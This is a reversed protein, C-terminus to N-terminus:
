IYELEARAVIDEEEKQTGLNTDRAFIEPKDFPHWQKFVCVFCMECRTCRRQSGESYIKTLYKKIHQSEMSFFFIHFEVMCLERSITVILICILFLNKIFIDEEETRHALSKHGIFHLILLFLNLAYFM